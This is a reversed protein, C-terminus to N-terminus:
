RVHVLPLGSRLEARGRRLPGYVSLRRLTPHDRFARLVGEVTLDPSDLSLFLERLPLATLAGLGSDSIANARGVLSLRELRGCGALRALTPDGYAGGLRLERLEPLDTLFGLAGDDLDGVLDLMQLRTLAGLLPVARSRCGGDLTLRRLGSLRAVAQIGQESVSTLDLEELGRLRDM